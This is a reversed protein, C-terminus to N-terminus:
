RILRIAETIACGFQSDAENVCRRGNFHDIFDINKRDVRDSWAFAFFRLRIRWNSCCHKWCTSICYIKVIYRTKWWGINFRLRMATIENAVLGRLRITWDVLLSETSYQTSFRIGNFNRSPLRSFVFSLFLPFRILRVISTSFNFAIGRFILKSTNESTTGSTKANALQNLPPSVYRKWHIGSM